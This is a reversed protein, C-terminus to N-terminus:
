LTVKHTTNITLTLHNDETSIQLDEVKLRPEYLAIQERIEDELMLIMEQTMAKDVVEYSLGFNPNLPITYKKTKFIRNLNEEISLKYKM